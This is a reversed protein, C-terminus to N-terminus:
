CLYGRWEGVLEYLTPNLGKKFKAIGAPTAANLGGVDFWHCEAQKAHLIAEWLLVSNAQASRGQDTTTGILYTATNGHHVSVLHGVIENEKEAVFCNFQWHLTHYQALTRIQTESLGQFDRQKQLIQYSQLLQDIDTSRKVTVGLRQGKRLCNRWTGQLHHLLDAEAFRLDILGSGWAPTQRQRLKRQTLTHHVDTENPLEPAVQIIWWRNRRAMRLVAQTIEIQSQLNHTDLFIPGRNLRAIGGIVPLTKTLWQVLAVPQQNANFVAVRKPKWGEVEAKMNGYEWAQPMNTVAAHSWLSQWDSFTINSITYQELM